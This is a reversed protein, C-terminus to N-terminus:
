ADTIVLEFKESHLKARKISIPLARQALLERLKAEDEPLIGAGFIIAKLSRPPFEIAGVKGPTVIRWEKEYEWYEAKYTLGRTMARSKNLDFLRFSPRMKGYEVRYAILFPTFNTDFELCYGRHSDAYHGWMLMNDPDETLSLVGFDVVNKRWDLLAERELPNQLIKKLGELAQNAAEDLDNGILKQAKAAHFAWAQAEEASGRFDIIPYCDFPDNFSVPSGAWLQSGVIIERDFQYRSKENRKDISRYKFFSPPPSDAAIDKM